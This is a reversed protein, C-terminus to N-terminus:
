RSNANLPFPPPIAPNVMCRRGGRGLCKHTGAVPEATQGTPSEEADYGSRLVAAGHQCRLLFGTRIRVEDGDSRM